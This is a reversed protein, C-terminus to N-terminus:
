EDSHTSPNLRNFFATPILTHEPPTGWADTAHAERTEAAPPRAVSHHTGLEAGERWEFAEGEFLEDWLVVEVAAQLCGYVKRGDPLQNPIEVSGGSTRADVRLDEKAQLQHHEELVDAGLTLEHLNRRVTQANAPKESVIQM